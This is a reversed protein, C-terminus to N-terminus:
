RLFAFQSRAVMWAFCMAPTAPKGSANDAFYTKISATKMGLLAALREMARGTQYDQQNRVLFEFMQQTFNRQAQYLIEPTMVAAAEERQRLLEILLARQEDPTM